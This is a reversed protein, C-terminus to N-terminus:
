DGGKVASINLSMLRGNGVDMHPLYARSFDDFGDPLFERWDYRAISYFGANILLKKIFQFDFTHYHINYENDQGGYLLGLIPELKNGNSHYEATIAEFDPVSIYIEGDKKLVRSWENLVNQIEHRKFHELCHCAYLSEVSGDPFNDLKDISQLYDIHPYEVIDVHKWGHLLRKGCGLHLKEM